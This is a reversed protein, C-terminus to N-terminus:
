YVRNNGLETTGGAPDVLRKARSSDCELIAVRGTNGKTSVFTDTGSAATSERIVVDQSDIVEIAAGTKQAHRGQFGRVKVDSCREVALGSSFYDPLDNDWTVKLNTVSLGFVRECHLAPIDHKFIATAKERTSRLDFNGGYQAQLPGKRIHLKIDTFTVDEIVSDATGYVLMGAEGVASINSFRVNRIKGPAKAEPDWLLASVHIPEAKGWWRGTYHQTEIIINSFSIDEVNDGSRVFVSLGRHSSRILLNDFTCNKISGDKYGVRIGTSKCSLTCTSVAVDQSGFIAICDDGTEINCGVIRVQRCQSLDIGDDNPIRLAHERTNIDIGQILVDTCEQLHTTWTPSNQITIGSILVNRCKKFRVLNGPRDNTRSFPGDAYGEPGVKMFSEGQRTYKPDHDKGAYGLEEKVFSRASGDIVGRGVIAVHEGGECTVLGSRNSEHGSSHAGELPYDELRTSGLLKSGADLHLTTRSGIHIPRIKYVGAPVFVTGGGRSACQDLATQLAETDDTKGDGVSGFGRVDHFSSAGSSHACGVLSAGAVMAGSAQLFQRRTAAVQDKIQQTRIQITM